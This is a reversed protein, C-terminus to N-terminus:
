NLSVCSSSSHKMQNMIKTLNLFLFLILLAADAPPAAQQRSGEGKDESAGFRDSKLRPGSAAHVGLLLPELLAVSSSRAQETVRM